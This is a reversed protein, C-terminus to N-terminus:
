RQMAAVPTPEAVQAARQQALLQQSSHEFSPPQALEVTARFGPTTGVVFAKGDQVAVGGVKEPADIGHQKAQATIHAALEDSYPAPLQARIATYLRHDPHTPQDLGPVASASRAQTAPAHPTASSAALAQAGRALARRTDPGVEGDVAIGQARQLREVAAQTHAGFKGDEALRHGREDRVGLTNLQHQLARVNPGHDGHQLLPPQGGHRTSQQDQKAPETPHSAARHTAAAVQFEPKARLAGVIHTSGGDWYGGPRITVEAPGTSGQSGVFQIHGKADYGKFIVIHQGGSASFMLLDGPKLDGGPKRADAASIVDFHERAYATTKNGNFLTATTFNAANQGQVGYGAEKLSRWVFSSCDVGLKGDGDGDRELRSPDRGPRPHDSRGYEYRRGENFFHRQAAELIAVNGAENRSGARTTSANTAAQTGHGPANPTTTPQRVVQVEGARWGEFRKIGDALAEREATNMQGVTKGELHLGHRRAQDFITAAQKKYHTTGSYDPRSYSPLLEEVTHNAHSRTLLQIKAARGAQYSEFVANGWQDLDVVGQYRGRAAELAQERTRPNTVTTDASGSFEFKLNGPNNNRWSVTGGHREIISGDDLELTRTTGQSSILRTIKHDPM